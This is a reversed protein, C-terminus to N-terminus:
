RAALIAHRRKIELAEIDDLAAVSRNNWYAATPCRFNGACVGCSEAHRAFEASTEELMRLAMALERDM